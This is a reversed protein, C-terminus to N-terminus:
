FSAREDMSLDSMRLSSKRLNILKVVGNLSAKMSARKKDFNHNALSEDDINKIWESQLAQSATYRSSPDVVLLHKIM